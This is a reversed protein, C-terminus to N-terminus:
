SYRVTIVISGVNIVQGDVAVQDTLPESFAVDTAPVASMIAQIIQSRYLSRGPVSTATLEAVAAQALGIATAPAMTADSLLVDAVVNVTTKDLPEVLIAIGASAFQFATASIADFLTQSIGSGLDPEVRATLYGPGPTANLLVLNNVGPTSLLAQRVSEYVSGRLSRLHAPFRAQAAALSERNTGGALDGSTIDGSVVSSGVKFSLNPLQEYVPILLSNAPLNKASGVEQAKIGVFAYSGTPVSVASTTIFRAGTTPHALVLGAAVSVNSVSSNTVYAAGSALQGPNRTFNVMSANADFSEESKTLTAHNNEHATKLDVWADSLVAAIALVFRKTVSIDRQDRLTGGYVVNSISSVLDEYTKFTPLAM